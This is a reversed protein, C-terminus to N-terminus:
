NSALKKRRLRRAIKLLCAAAAIYLLNDMAIEKDFFEQLSALMFGARNKLSITIETPIKVGSNAKFLDNGAPKAVISINTQFLGPRPFNAKVTIKKNEKPNLLFDNPSIKLYNRLSDPYVEFFAPRNDPNEVFLDTQLPSNNTGSMKIESPWVKLGAAGTALPLLLAAAIALIFFIRQKMM